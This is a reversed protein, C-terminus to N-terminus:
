GSNSPLASIAQEFVVAHQPRLTGSYYDWDNGVIQQASRKVRQLCDVVEPTIRLQRLDKKTERRERRRLATETLRQQWSRFSWYVKRWVYRVPTMLTSREM